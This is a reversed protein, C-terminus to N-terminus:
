NETLVESDYELEFRLKHKAEEQALMAFLDRLEETRVNQAMDTYLRFAAKEKKMALVLADGYDMDPTPRVDVVYDAIRLDTVERDEPTVDGFQGSKVSELKRRHGDEEAAFGRFVEAMADNEMRSALDMYFDHSEIERAIAFDLAADMTEWREM